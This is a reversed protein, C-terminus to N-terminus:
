RDPPHTPAILAVCAPHMLDGQFRMSRRKVGEQGGRSDRGESSLACPPWRKSQMSSSPSARICARRSPTRCPPGHEAGREAEKPLGALQAGV